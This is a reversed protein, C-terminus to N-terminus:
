EGSDEEESTSETPISFGDLEMFPAALQVGFQALVLGVAPDIEPDADATEQLELILGVIDSVAVYHVGDSDTLTRLSAAATIHATETTETATM